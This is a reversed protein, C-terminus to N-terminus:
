AEPRGVKGALEATAKLRLEAELKKREANPVVSRAREADEEAARVRKEWASAKTLEDKVSKIKEAADGEGKTKAAQLTKFNDELEGVQKSYKKLEDDRASLQQSLKNKEDALVRIDGELSKVRGGLQVALKENQKESSQINTKYNKYENELKKYKTESENIRKTFRNSETKSSTYRHLLYGGVGAVLLLLVIEWAFTGDSNQFINLFLM